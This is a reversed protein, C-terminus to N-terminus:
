EQNQIEILVFNKTKSLPRTEMIKVEDGFKVNLCDPVHAKVRTRRKEYREYKPVYIRRPWEITTTKQFVNKVVKGVFVRGHLKISGHFPCKGDNCEKEPAKVDIGINKSM